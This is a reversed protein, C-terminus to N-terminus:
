IKGKKKSELNSTIKSWFYNKNWNNIYWKDTFIYYGPQYDYVVIIKNFRENFM